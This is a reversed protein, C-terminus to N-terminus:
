TINYTKQYLVINDNLDKEQLLIGKINLLIKMRIEQREKADLGSMYNITKIFNSKKELDFDWGLQKEKLDVWPTKNSILVPTGVSLSEAIVHGYNEGGSPFFFLDYKSFTQAVLDPRLEGYYCRTINTPLKKLEKNCREWYNKDVIRGYIDFVLNVKLMSLIKIAYLLNKESGINSIFVIRLHTNKNKETVIMSDKKNHTFLPLDKALYIRSERINMTKIIDEKEHSVSAHWYINKYLRFLRSLSIYFLKKLFRVRLSAWGFEGRPSLIISNSKIMKLKIGLLVKISLPDFFSNLHIVDFRRKNIIECINKFSPPNLYFVKANGVLNWEKDKVNEYPEISDIDHNRTIILFEFDNHLYNVTNEVSRLIGGSKSGPLYHGVIILVKLKVHVSGRNGNHSIIHSM